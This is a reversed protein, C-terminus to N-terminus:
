IFYIGTTNMNDQTAVLIARITHTGYIGHKYIARSLNSAYEFCIKSILVPM